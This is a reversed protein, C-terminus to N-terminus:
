GPLRVCYHARVQAVPVWYVWYATVRGSTILTSFLIEANFDCRSLSLTM